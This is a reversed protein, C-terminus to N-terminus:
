DGYVIMNHDAKFDAIIESLSRRSLIAVVNYSDMALSHKSLYVMDSKHHIAYYLGPSIKKWVLSDPM